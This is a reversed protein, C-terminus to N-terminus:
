RSEADDVSPLELLGNDKTTIGIPLTETPPLQEAPQPAPIRDVIPKLKVALPHSGDFELRQFDTGRYVEMQTTRRLPPRVGLIEDLTKADITEVITTDGPNRLSLSLTGLGQVVRLTEAQAPTVALTVRLTTEDPVAQADAQVTSEQLALVGVGQMLTVTTSAYREQATTAPPSIEFGPRSRSIRGPPRSGSRQDFRAQSPQEDDFGVRFLVDVLQGANAFGNLANESSILVTVARQGPALQNAINPRYGEPYFRETHFTEGKAIDTLMTQGIIQKPDSMFMGEIGRKKLQAKTMRMLAVDALTVTRGAGLDRSAMPVTILEAQVSTESLSRPRTLKRFAYVGALGFLTAMFALLISASNAKRM